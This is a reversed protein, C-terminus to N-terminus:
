PLSPILIEAFSLKRTVQHRFEAVFLNHSRPMRVGAGPRFGDLVFLDFTPARTVLRVMTWVTVLRVGRRTSSTPQPSPQSARASASRPMSTTPISTTGSSIAVPAAVRPRVTEPTSRRPYPGGALELGSRNSVIRQLKENSPFSETSCRSWAQRAIHLGLTVTTM